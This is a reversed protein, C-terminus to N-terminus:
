LLLKISDTWENSKILALYLNTIRKSENTWKLQQPQFGPGCMYYAVSQWQAM